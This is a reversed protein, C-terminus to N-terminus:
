KNAERWKDWREQSVERKVQKMGDETLKEHVEHWRYCTPIRFLEDIEEDEVLDIWVQDELVEGCVPCDYVRMEYHGM